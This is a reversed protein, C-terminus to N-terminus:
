VREKLREKQEDEKHSIADLLDGAHYLQKKDTWLEDPTWEPNVRCRESPYNEAFGQYLLHLFQCVAKPKIILGKCLNEPDSSYHRHVTGGRIIALDGAEWKYEQGDHIEYGEGELIYLMAENQHYHKKGHSEPALVRYHLQLSQTIGSWPRVLQKGWTQSGQPPSSNAKMPIESGRILRKEPDRLSEWVDKYDYRDTELATVYTRKGPFTKEYAADVAQQVTISKGGDTRHPHDDCM